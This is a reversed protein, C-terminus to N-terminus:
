ISILNIINLNNFNFIMVQCSYKKNSSYNESNNCYQIEGIFSTNCNNCGYCKTVSPSLDVSLKTLAINQPQVVKNMECKSADNFLQTALAQDNCLSTTCIRFTLYYSQINIFLNFMSNTAVNLENTSIRLDSGCTGFVM